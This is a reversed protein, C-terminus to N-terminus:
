GGPQHQSLLSHVPKALRVRDTSEFASPRKRPRCCGLLEVHRHSSFELSSLQSNHFQVSQHGRLKRSHSIPHTRLRLSLTSRIYVISNSLMFPVSRKTRRASGMDPPAMSELDDRRSIRAEDRSPVAEPYIRGKGSPRGMGREEKQECMWVAKITPVRPPHRFYILYNILRSM